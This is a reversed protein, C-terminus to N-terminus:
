LKPEILHLYYLNFSYLLKLEILYLKTEILDIYFLHIVYMVTGYDM